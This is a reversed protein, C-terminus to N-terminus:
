RIRHLGKMDKPHATTAGDSIIWYDGNCRLMASAPRRSGGSASASVQIGIAAAARERAVAVREIWPEAAGIRRYTQIM